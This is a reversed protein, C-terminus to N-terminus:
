RSWVYYDPRPGGNVRTLKGPRETNGTLAYPRDSRADGGVRVWGYQDPRPGGNMRKLEWGSHTHDAFAAPSFLGVAVVAALAFKKFM